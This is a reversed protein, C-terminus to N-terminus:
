GAHQRASWPVWTITRSRRPLERYGADRRRVLGSASEEAARYGLEVGSLRRRVAEDFGGIVLRVLRSVEDLAEQLDTDCADCGCMPVIGPHLYRGFGIVLAPHSTWGFLLPSAAPDDPRVAAARLLDTSRSFRRLDVDSAPAATAGYKTSLEAVLTDAHAHLGGFVAHMDRTVRSYAEAPPSEVGWRDGM